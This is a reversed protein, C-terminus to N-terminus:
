SETRLQNLRALVVVIFVIVGKVLIQVGESYGRLLLIDSITAILIAGGLAQWISGRGGTIAIGGVVAAAIADYTLTGEILLSGNENFAGLEIGGIATCLGALAFAGAVIWATPLGAARAAAVNEGVLKLQQGFRTRRMLLDLVIVTGFLIYVPVPITLIHGNLWEYSSDGKPPLIQAGDSAWLAVGQILGTAGITVIIPNAGIGGVLLGQIAGLVVGMAMTAAFALVIGQPLLALFVMASAAATAGLALSFLNGSIMILATAVAIMGVFAVSSLIAKVNTTTLFGETTFAGFVILAALLAVSGFVAVRIATDRGGPAALAGGRHTAVETSM